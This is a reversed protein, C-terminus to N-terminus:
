IGLTGDLDLPCSEPNSWRGREAVKREVMKRGWEPDERTWEDILQGADKECGAHKWLESYLMGKICYGVQRRKLNKWVTRPTTYAELM